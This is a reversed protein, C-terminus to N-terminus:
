IFILRGEIFYIEKGFRCRKLLILTTKTYSPSLHLAHLAKASSRHETGLRYTTAQLELELAESV